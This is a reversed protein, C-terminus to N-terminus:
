AYSDLSDVPHVESFQDASSTTLRAALYSAIDAETIVSIGYMYTVYQIGIFRCRISFLEAPAYHQKRHSNCWQM